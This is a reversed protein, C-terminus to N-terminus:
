RWVSFMNSGIQSSIARHIGRILDLRPTYRAGIADNNGGHLRIQDFYKIEGVPDGVVARKDCMQYM